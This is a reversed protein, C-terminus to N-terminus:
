KASRFVFVEYIGWWEPSHYGTTTFKISKVRQAPAFRVTAPEFVKAPSVPVDRWNVGDASVSASLGRAWENTYISKQGYHDLVIRTIRLPADFDLRFWEGPEQAGTLGRTEWETQRNNDIALQPKTGEAAAWASAHWHENPVLRVEGPGAPIGLDKPWTPQHLGLTAWQGIASGHADRALEEYVPM